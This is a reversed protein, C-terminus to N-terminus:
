EKHTGEGPVLDSLITLLSPLQDRVTMWIVDLRVENYGHILRHRMGIIERWPIQPLNIQAEVSVKNAAEGIVELSRIVANQHLRSQNFDAESLNQVFSLADHAALWMDMLLGADRITLDAM